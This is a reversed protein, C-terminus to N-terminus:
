VDNALYNLGGLANVLEFPRVDFSVLVQGLLFLVVGEGFLLINLSVCFSGCHTVCHAAWGVMHDDKWGRANVNVDGTLM